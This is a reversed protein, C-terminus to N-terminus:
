GHSCESFCYRNCLRCGHDMPGDMSLIYPRKCPGDMSSIYPRKTNKKAKEIKFIQNKSVSIFSNDKQKRRFFLHKSIHKKFCDEFIDQDFINKNNRNLFYFFYLLIIIGFLRTAKYTQRWTTKPHTFGMQTGSLRRWREGLQIVGYSSFIGSIPHHELLGPSHHDRRGYLHRENFPHDCRIPRIQVYKSEIHNWPHGNPYLSLSLKKKNWKM